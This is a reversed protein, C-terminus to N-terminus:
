PKKPTVIIDRSLSCEPLKAKSNEDYKTYRYTQTYNSLKANPYKEHILAAAEIDGPSVGNENDGHSHTASRIKYGNDFVAINAFTKDDVHEVNTGILNEGEEGSKDGVQALGVETKGQTTINDSLHEFIQKASEDDKVDLYNVAIGSKTELKMQHQVVKKGVDLTTGDIKNGKSDVKYLVDTKSEGQWTIKGNNQFSWKDRGDPDIYKVPNDHCYVYSSVRPYKEALPDVSLWVSTRPDMYRAGYYYLGTEEDLEKANFKYPTNWTNNREEIFVEGFPVYELHQVINGDLNTILSSSGLHDSHYFYQLTENSTAVQTYFGAGAHDTGRYAVRLSDYRTKIKSTLDTYKASYDVTGGTYTAKTETLPSSPITGTDCLKSVIRQSGIYFHKSCQGGNTIVMYPNVYATFNTTGTRGGSLMGNVLVGEGDGSTKVTREGSADYWYNSVYGNDSLALLRNEEDWLLKRENSKNQRGDADKQTTNVCILNGNADYSYTQTKATKKIVGETRYISDTITSIQQPNNEYAYTLDYGAKLTGDFQVGTQIIHQQKTTINHLNDYEMSLTYSAAKGANGTYTGSASTLRYLGDYVYNHIMQGGIGTTSISATNKVSLVNNVKDYTYANDMLKRGIQTSLVSLNSLNRNQPDYTYSTETGNGYKMYNRQEFKDYGINSVYTYPYGGKTGTLSSLMGGTNYSYTLTEGDPYTMTQVRNWTDYTWDTVYTAVAQNPIILTRRVQTIEGMKGYKFEQAGSGDIQCVLRGIRNNNSESVGGYKYIVSNEPHNPYIIEKLRNYDYRYEIKKSEKLLNATQKYILNSGADYEFTTTGSAPHNVQVRRGAMDYVSTTTDGKADMVKIPQGIGDFEFLTTINLSDLSQVTKVTQDSGNTYTVNKHNKADTVTTKLLNNEINYEAKTQSGDPLTTTLVRDLIDYTKKTPSVGDFIRNFTTKLSTSETIPYYSEEARGFADYKAMGSVIMVENDIGNEMVIGDKKVQVTRGFGDVFTVTELDNSPHAPDYHKTIAYAPADISGATKTIQPHYDFKLTYDTENPGKIKYVRGLDDISTTMVNGNIDTTTLPIGYRYDYNELKSVYGFTDEIQTVYMNYKPDYTYNYSMGSPLIKQKINGANDYTMTTTAFDVSNLKQKIKTLHTPYATDEYFAEIQRYPQKLTSDSNLVRVTQPLGFIHKADNSKYTIETLYNYENNFKDNYKYEKLEGHGGRENDKNVYYVYESINKRLSSSNGHHMISKTSQLPSFVIYARLYGEPIATSFYHYETESPKKTVVYTYYKNISREYKQGNADTIFTSDLFGKTYINANNYIQNIIRYVSYDTETDINKTVVKSFGLFERECREYRGGSYEFATKMIPGDISIGDDVTVSDMVWKGGPHDSTPESRTYDISINGGLPNSVSKLKNTRAINSRNVNVIADGIGASVLDTFGDGDVDRLVNTSRGITSSAFGSATLSVKGIFFIKFNVTAAANLSESTSSSSYIKNSPIIKSESAFGNGMNLAFCINSDFLTPSNTWVKDLLGDGNIDILSFTSESLTAAIGYGGWSVEKM